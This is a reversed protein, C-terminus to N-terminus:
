IKHVHEAGCSDNLHGSSSDNIIEVQLDYKEANKVPELERIQLGGVGDAGDIVFRNEYKGPSEFSNM